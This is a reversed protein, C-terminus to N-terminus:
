HNVYRGEEVEEVKQSSAPIALFLVSKQRMLSSSSMDEYVNASAEADVVEIMVDVRVIVSIRVCM